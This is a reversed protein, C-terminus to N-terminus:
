PVLPYECHVAKATVSCVKAKAEAYRVELWKNSEIRKQQSCSASLSLNKLASKSWETQLLLM